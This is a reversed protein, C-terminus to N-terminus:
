GEMRIIDTTEEEVVDRDIEVVSDMIANKWDNVGQTNRNFKEIQLMAAMILIEPHVETWYSTDIDASLTVTHFFGVVEIATTAAPPPLVYIGNYTSMDTATHDLYGQMLNGADTAVIFTPCYYLPTGRTLASWPSAYNDRMWALTQKELPWVSSSYYGWVEKISRCNVFNLFYTGATLSSSYRNISKNTEILRELYRQGANIFFNANAGTPGTDVGAASVLDYRGSLARLGKRINLLSM